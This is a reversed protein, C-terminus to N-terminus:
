AANARAYICFKEPVLFSSKRFNITCDETKKFSLLLVPIFQIWDNKHCMCCSKIMKKKLICSEVTFRIQMHDTTGRFSYFPHLNSSLNFPISSLYHLHTSLQHRISTCKCRDYYLNLPHLFPFKSFRSQSKSTFKWFSLIVRRCCCKSTNMYKSAVSKLQYSIRIGSMVRKLYSTKMATVVFFSGVNWLFKTAHM